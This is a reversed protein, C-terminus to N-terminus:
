PTRVPAAASSTFSRAVDDHRFREIGGLMTTDRLRNM